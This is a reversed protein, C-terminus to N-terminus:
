DAAQRLNAQLQRTTRAKALPVEVREASRHQKARAPLLPLHLSQLSSREMMRGASPPVETALVFLQHAV